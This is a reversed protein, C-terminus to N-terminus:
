MRAAQVRRALARVDMSKSWSAAAEASCCKAAQRNYEAERQLQDAWRNLYWVRLRKMVEKVRSM